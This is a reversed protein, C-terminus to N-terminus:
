LFLASIISATFIGIVAGFVMLGLYDPDPDHFSMFIKELTDHKLCSRVNQPRIQGFIPPPATLRRSSLLVSHPSVHLRSVRRPSQEPGLSVLPMLVLPVPLSTLGFM